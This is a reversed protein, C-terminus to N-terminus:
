KKDKNIANAIDRAARDLDIKDKSYDKKTCNYISELM